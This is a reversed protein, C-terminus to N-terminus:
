RNEFLRRLEGNERSKIKDRALLNRLEISIRMVVWDFPMGRWRRRTIGQEFELGAKFIQIRSARSSVHRVCLFGFVFTKWLHRRHLLWKAIWIPVIMCVQTPLYHVHPLNLWRGVGAGAMYYFIFLSVVLVVFVLWSSGIFIFGGSPSLGESSCQNEETEELIGGLNRFFGSQGAQFNSSGSRLVGVKDM